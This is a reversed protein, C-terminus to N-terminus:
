AYVPEIWTNAPENLLNVLVQASTLAQDGHYRAMKKTVQSGRQYVEYGVVKPTRHKKIFVKMVPM